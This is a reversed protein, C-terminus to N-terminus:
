RPRPASARRATTATCPNKDNCVLANGGKCSGGKCADGTTCANGDDCATGDAFKTQCGKIPDCTETACLNGDDCTAATSPRLHRGQM